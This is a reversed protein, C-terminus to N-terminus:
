DILWKRSKDFARASMERLRRAWIMREKTSASRAKSEAVIRALQQPTIALQDAKGLCILRQEVICRLLAAAKHFVGVAFPHPAIGLNGGPKLLVTPSRCALGPCRRQGRSGHWAGVTSM